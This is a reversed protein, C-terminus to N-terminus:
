SIIKTKIANKKQFIALILNKEFQKKYLEFELM